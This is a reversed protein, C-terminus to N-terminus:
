RRDARRPWSTDAAVPDDLGLGLLLGHLPGRANRTVFARRDLQALDELHRVEGRLELRGGAVPRDRRRLLRRCGPRPPGRRRRARYRDVGDPPDLRRPQDGPEGPHHAVDATASSRACSASTAASSCHGRDPTGSLRPARSIAVALRRAMSHSEGPRWGPAGAPPAPRRAPSLKIATVIEVGRQIVLDAVVQHDDEGCGPRGPPGSRPRSARRASPRRSRARTRTPSAVFDGLPDDLGFASTSALARSRWHRRAALAAAADLM